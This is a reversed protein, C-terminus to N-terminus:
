LTLPECDETWPGFTFGCDYEDDYVESINSVPIENGYIDVLVTYKYGNKQYNEIAQWLKTMEDNVRKFKRKSLEAKADEIILMLLTNSMESMPTDKDLIM